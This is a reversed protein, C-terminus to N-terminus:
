ALYKYVARTQEDRALYEREILAEIHFKVKQPRLFSSPSPRPPPPPPNVQAEPRFLSIQSFVETLLQQHPLTKRAKMIRVIVAEITHGRNV